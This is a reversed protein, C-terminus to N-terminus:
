LLPPNFRPTDLISNFEAETLKGDGDEDYRM